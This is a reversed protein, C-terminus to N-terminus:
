HWADDIDRHEQLEDPVAASGTPRPRFGALDVVRPELGGAGTGM